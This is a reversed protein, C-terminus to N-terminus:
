RWNDAGFQAVPTPSTRSQRQLRIPPTSRVRGAYPRPKGGQFGATERYTVTGAAPDISVVKDAQGSANAIQPANEVTGNPLEILPSYGPRGIAGPQATAPPFGTPGATL